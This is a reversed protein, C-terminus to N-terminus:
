ADADAAKQCQSSSVPSPVRPVSYEHEHPNRFDPRDTFSDLQETTCLQSNIDPAQTSFPNIVDNTRTSHLGRQHNSPIHTNNKNPHSNRILSKLISLDWCFHLIVNKFDPCKLIFWIYANENNKLYRSFFINSLM